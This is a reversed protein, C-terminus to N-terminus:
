TIGFAIGSLNLEYALCQEYTSESLGPGLNCHVEIACGIVKNWPQDFKMMTAHGASKKGRGDSLASVISTLPRCM